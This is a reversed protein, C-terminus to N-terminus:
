GLPRNRAPDRHGHSIDVISNEDLENEYSPTLFSRGQKRFTNVVFEVEERSSNSM